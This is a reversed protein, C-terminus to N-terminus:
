KKLEKYTDYCFYIGLITISYFIVYSFNYLRPAYVYWEEMGTLSPFIAIYVLTIISLIIGVIFAPKILKVIFPLLIWASIIIIPYFFHNFGFVISSGYFAHVMFGINLITAIAGVQSFSYAVPMSYHKGLEHALQQEGLEKHAKYAFYIVTLHIFCFLYYWLHYVPLTLIYWPNKSLFGPYYLVWILMTISGSMGVLFATRVLRIYLPFLILWLMIWMYVPTAFGKLFAFGHGLTTGIIITLTCVIVAAQSKTYIAESL